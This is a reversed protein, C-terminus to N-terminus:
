KRRHWASRKGDEAEWGAKEASNGYRSLRSTDVPYQDYPAGYNQYQTNKLDLIRPRGILQLLYEYPDRGAIHALESAFVSRCVSMFLRWLACGGLGSM